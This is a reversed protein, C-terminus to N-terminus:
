AFFHNKVQMNQWSLSKYDMLKKISMKKLLHNLIPLEYDLIDEIATHPEPETNGTLFHTMIEANTKITMNGLKTRNTFYHNELAFKKYPKKDAIFYKAAGWLCFSKEFMDCDIGTKRMKDVDFPLNYATMTPSYKENVRALWRNIAEPRAMMRLGNLLMDDYLAYRKPLYEKKWLEIEENHFLESVKYIGAVIVACQTVINGKRDSVVAGFDVVKNDMTTETDITIFYQKKAM